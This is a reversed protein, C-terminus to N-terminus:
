GLGQGYGWWVLTAVLFVVVPAGILLVLTWVAMPRREGRLLSLVALVLAALFALAAMAKGLVPGLLQSPVSFANMVFFSLFGAFVLILAIRGLRPPTRLPPLPTETM